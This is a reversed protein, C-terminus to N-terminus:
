GEVSYDSQVARFCKKETFYVRLGHYYDPTM